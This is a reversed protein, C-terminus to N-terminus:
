PTLWKVAFAGAFAFALMKLTKGIWCFFLFKSVPMRLMGATIGALDFVPNPIFALVLITLAGYRRMMKELREIRPSRELVARGSFGALYGSLEGLASGAGAALAVPLPPFVAGMSFVFAVGPAPLFLTANALISLLFIGPYGYVALQAAQDRISFIYVTIAIVAALSLIRALTLWLSAQTRSSRPASPTPALTSPPEESTRTEESM